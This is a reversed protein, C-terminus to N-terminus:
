MKFAMCAPRDNTSLKRLHIPTFHHIHISTANVQLQFVFSENGCTVHHQHKHISKSQQSAKESIGGHLVDNSSAQPFCVTEIHTRTSPFYTLKQELSHTQTIQSLVCCKLICLFIRFIVYKRPHIHYINAFCVNMM